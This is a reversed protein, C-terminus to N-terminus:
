RPATGAGWDHVRVSAFPCVRMRGCEKLVCIQGCRGPVFAPFIFIDILHNGHCCLRMNAAVNETNHNKKKRNLQNFEQTAAQKGLETVRELCVSVCVDVCACM